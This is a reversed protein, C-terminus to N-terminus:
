RSTEFLGNERHVVGCQVLPKLLSFWGPTVGQCCRGLPGLGFAEFIGFNCLWGLVGDFYRHHVHFRLKVTIRSDTTHSVLCKPVCSKFCYSRPSFRPVDPLDVTPIMEVLMEQFPDALFILGM